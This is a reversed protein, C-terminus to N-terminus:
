SPHEQCISPPPGEGRNLAPLVAGPTSPGTRPEETFCHYLAESSNTWNFGCIYHLSQLAEGILFPQSHHFLESYLLSLQSGDIHIFVQLTPHLTSLALSKEAMNLLVSALVLSLPYLSFCLLIGRFM